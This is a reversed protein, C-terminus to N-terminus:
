FTKMREYMMKDILTARQSMSNNAIQMTERWHALQKGGFIGQRAKRNFRSLRKTVYKRKLTSARKRKQKLLRYLFSRTPNMEENSQQVLKSLKQLKSSTYKISNKAQEQKELAKQLATKNGNDNAFDIDLHADELEDQLRQLTLRTLSIEREVRESTHTGAVLHELKHRYGESHRIAQLRTDQAQPAIFIPLLEPDCDKFDPAHGNVGIDPPLNPDEEFCDENPPLLVDERTTRIARVQSRQAKKHESSRARMGFRRTSRPNREKKNFKNEGDRQEFYAEWEEESGQDALQIGTCNHIRNMVHEAIEAHTPNGSGKALAKGKMYSIYSRAISDAEEQSYEIPKSSSGLQELM